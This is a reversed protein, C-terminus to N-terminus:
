ERIWTYNGQPGALYSPLGVHEVFDWGSLLNRVDEIMSVKPRYMVHQCEAYILKVGRMLNSSGSLVEMTTGETDIILADPTRRHYDCFTDLRYQPCVIHKERGDRRPLCGSLGEDEHIYFDALRNSEGIVANHFEIESSMPTAGPNGEIAVSTCNCIQQVTYAEHGDGAGVQVLCKIEMRICLNTLAHVVAVEEHSM